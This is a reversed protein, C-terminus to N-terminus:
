WWRLRRFYWALLAGIALMALLSLPYGFRWALEPMHEFNMGYIGAILTMSMLVISAATLTRVTQNLHNSQLTLYIDTASSLVDRHADIAETVRIVHDYLDQYYVVSEEGLVAVERRTFANFVERTPAITRRLQLLVRKLTFIEEVDRTAVRDFMREQIAEIEDAVLDIAPFYGDVVVDSITYVLMGASVHDHERCHEAWRLEAIELAPMDGGHVTVVVEKTAFLALERTQM